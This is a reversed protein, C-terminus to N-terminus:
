GRPLTGVNGVVYSAVHIRSGTQMSLDRGSGRISGRNRLQGTQIRSMVGVVGDQSWKCIVLLVFYFIVGIPGSGVM